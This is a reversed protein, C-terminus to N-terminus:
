GVHYEALATCILQDMLCQLQQVKLDQSCLESVAIQDTSSVGCYNTTQSICVVYQCVLFFNKLLM